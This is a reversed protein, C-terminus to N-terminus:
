PTPAEGNAPVLDEFARAEDVTMVGLPVLTSYLQARDLPNGRLMEEVSFRVRSGSTSVDSMSLRSEIASMAPRVGFDILNRAEQSVNSYTLSSGGVNAGAIYHAPIGVLNAIMASTFQRAEVLQLQGADWGVNEIEVGANVYGIASNARAQRVGAILAAIEADNLEYTSVNKLMQSPLPTEAYRRAAHELALATRIIDAGHRRIGDHWGDFGIVDAPSYFRGGFEIGITSGDSGTIPNVKALDCYVTGGRKLTGNPNRGSAALNRGGELAARMSPYGSGRVVWFAVGDLILDRTTDIMTAWRSRGAEPQDVWGPDVFKGSKTIRRVPLQAITTAVLDVARSLAPVSLAQARSVEGTAAWDWSPGWTEPVSVFPGSSATVRRVRDGVHDTAEILGSGRFPWVAM